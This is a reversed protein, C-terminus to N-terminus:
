RVAYAVFTKQVERYRGKAIPVRAGNKLRFAFRSSDNVWDMNVIYSKHCRLFGAPLRQEYDALVGPCEVADKEKHIKLKHGMAEICLIDRYAFSYTELGSTIVLRKETYNQEYDYSIAERLKDPDVPKLLYQIPRVAYGELLFGTSSTVFIIGVRSKSQRLAQALAVGNDEGLLIDLLLLQFADPDERLQAMLEGPHHFVTLNYEIDLRFLISNVQERLDEAFIPEDDCIAIKYM